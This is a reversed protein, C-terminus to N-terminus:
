LKITPEPRGWNLEKLLGNLDEGALLRVQYENPMPHVVQTLDYKLLNDTLESPLPEQDSDPMMERNVDKAEKGPTSIIRVDFDWINLPEFTGVKRVRGHYTTFKKMIDLGFDLIYVKNNPQIPAKSLDEGNPGTAPYEGNVAYVPTGNATKKVPTRDLVNLLMRKGPKARASEEMAAFHKKIPTDGPGVVISRPQQKGGVNVWMYYRWYSFEEQDLVRIVHEAVVNTPLRLYITEFSSTTNEQTGSQSLSSGFGM